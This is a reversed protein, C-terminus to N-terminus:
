GEVPATVSKFVAPHAVRYGRLGQWFANLADFGGPHLPPWEHGLKKFRRLPGDQRGARSHGRRTGPDPVEGAARLPLSNRASGAVSGCSALGAVSLVGLVTLLCALARRGAGM